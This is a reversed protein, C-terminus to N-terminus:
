ACGICRSHEHESSGDRQWVITPDLIARLLAANVDFLEYTGGVYL